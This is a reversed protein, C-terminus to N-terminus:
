TRVAVRDRGNLFTVLGIVFILIAAFAAGVANGNAAILFTIVGIVLMLIGLTELGLSNPKTASPDDHTAVDAGCYSCTTAHDALQQKCQPCKM